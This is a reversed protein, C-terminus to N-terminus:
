VQEAPVHVAAGEQCSCTIGAANRLGSGLSCPHTYVPTRASSCENARLRTSSPTVVTTPQPSEQQEWSLCCGLIRSWM